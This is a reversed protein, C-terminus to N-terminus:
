KACIGDVYELIDGNQDNIYAWPYIKDKPTVRWATTFSKPLTIDHLNLNYYGFELDVCSGVDINAKKMIEDNAVKNLFITKVDNPIMLHLNTVDINTIRDGYIEISIESKKQWFSIWDTFVKLGNVYQYALIYTAAGMNAYQWFQLNSYDIKNTYM